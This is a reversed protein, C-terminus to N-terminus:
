KCEVELCSLEVYQYMFIIVHCMTNLKDSVGGGGEGVVNEWYNRIRVNLQRKNYSAM